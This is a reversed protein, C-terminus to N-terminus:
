SMGLQFKSLLQRQLTSAADFLLLLLPKSCNYVKNFSILTLFCLMHAGSMEKCKAPFIPFYSCYNVSAHEFMFPFVHRCCRWCWRGLQLRWLATAMNVSSQVCEGRFMCNWIQIWREEPHAAESTWLVEQTIQSVEAKGGQKGKRLLPKKVAARWLSRKQHILQLDGLEQTLGKSKKLAHSESARWRSYM